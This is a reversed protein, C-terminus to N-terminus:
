KKKRVHLARKLGMEISRKKMDERKDYRRKGRGLALSVKVFGRSNFYIKVPILTLGKQVAQGEIKKIEKKHLLLKRPRDPDQNLYSAEKYPNIHLNYLFVEGDEIRAYSSKFNVHGERISKVEPGKLAIGCEWDKTIHFNRFAKRNTAILKGAMINVRKILSIIVIFGQRPLQNIRERIV